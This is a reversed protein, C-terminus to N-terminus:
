HRQHAPPRISRFSRLRLSNAVICVGALAPAGLAVLPDLLGAAALPLTAVCSTCALWRNRVVTERLARGLRVADAAGWLDGGALSVDGAGGTRGLGLEARALAPRDHPDTADGVFAVVRGENQLRRVVATRDRPVVEAFVEAIGLRGALALSGQPDDPTLLVTRMGLARLEGMAGGAAATPGLRRGPAAGHDLGTLDLPALVITDVRSGQELRAPARVDLGLRAGRRGAAAHAAPAALALALPCAAVLVGAAASLPAGVAPGPAATLWFGFAGAALTGALVVYAGLHVGAPAPRDTGFGHPRSPTPPPPAPTTARGALAVVTVVAAVSLELHVPGPGPRPWSWFRDRLGAVDVPGAFLTGLSAALAALVAASVLMEVVATGQRLARGAARHFPAAGWVAVPAALCLSLWAWNPFQLAPVVALAVV